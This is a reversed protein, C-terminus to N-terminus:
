NLAVFVWQAAGEFRWHFCRVPVREALVQDTEFSLAVQVPNTRLRAVRQMVNVVPLLAYHQRRALM